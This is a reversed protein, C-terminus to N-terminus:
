QVEVQSLKRIGDLIKAFIYMTKPIFFMDSFNTYKTSVNMAWFLLQKFVQYTQVFGKWKKKKQSDLWNTWRLWIRFFEKISGPVTRWVVLHNEVSILQCAITESCLLPLNWTGKGNTEFQEISVSEMTGSSIEESARSTMLKLYFSHELLWSGMNDTSVQSLLRLRAPCPLSALMTIGCCYIALILLAYM